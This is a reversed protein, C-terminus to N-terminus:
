KTSSSNIYPSLKNEFNTYALEPEKESTSVIFLSAFNDKIFCYYRQSITVSNSATVTADVYYFTKDAIEKKLTVQFTTELGQTNIIEEKIYNLYDKEDRIDKQLSSLKESMFIIYKLNNESDIPEESIIFEYIINAKSLDIEKQEDNFMAGSIEDIIKSMQDTTAIYWGEPLVFKLQLWDSIYVNEQWKGVVYSDNIKKCGTLLFIFLILLYITKIIRKM